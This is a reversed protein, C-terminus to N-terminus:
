SRLFGFMELLDSDEEGKLIIRGNKLINIKSGTSLRIQKGGKIDKEITIFYNRTTLRTKVLLVLTQFHIRKANKLM